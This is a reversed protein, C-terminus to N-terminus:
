REQLTKAAAAAAFFALALSLAINYNAMSLGLFTWAIHDCHPMATHLLAERLDAPSGGNLPQVACGATGEWWHLEVGSHFVALGMGVLYAAAALALLFVAQRGYPKWLWAALALVGAVCYPVRQWLCLVCPELGFGFQMILAFLLAAANAAVLIKAAAPLTLAKEVLVHM